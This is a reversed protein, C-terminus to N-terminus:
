DTRTKSEPHMFMRTKAHEIHSSSRETPMSGIHPTPCTSVITRREVEQAMLWIFTGPEATKDPEPRACRPLATPRRYSAPASASHAGYLSSAPCAAAYGVGETRPTFRRTPGAFFPDPPLHTIWSAFAMSDPFRLGLLPLILLALYLCGASRVDRAPNKKTQVHPQSTRSRCWPFAARTGSEKLFPPVTRMASASNTELQSEPRVYGPIANVSICTIRRKLRVTKRHTAHPRATLQGYGRPKGKGARFPRLWHSVPVVRWVACGTDRGVIVPRNVGPLFEVPYRERDGPQDTTAHRPFIKRRQSGRVVILGRGAIGRVPPVPRFSFASM